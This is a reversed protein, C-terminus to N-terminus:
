ASRPQDPCPCPLTITSDPRSMDVEAFRVVEVVFYKLLAVRGVERDERGVMM